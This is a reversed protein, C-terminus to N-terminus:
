QLSLNWVWTQLVICGATLTIFDRPRWTFFVFCAKANHMNTKRRQTHLNRLTFSWETVGWALPRNQPFDKVCALVTRFSAKSNREKRGGRGKHNWSPLQLASHYLFHGPFLFSSTCWEVAARVKLFTRENRLCVLLRNLHLISQKPNRLIHDTM